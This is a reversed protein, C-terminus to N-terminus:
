IIKLESLWFSDDFMQMFKSIKINVFDTGPSSFHLADLRNVGEEESVKLSHSHCIKIGEM